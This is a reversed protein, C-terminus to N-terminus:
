VAPQNFSVCIGAQFFGALDQFSKQWSENVIHELQRNVFNERWRVSV